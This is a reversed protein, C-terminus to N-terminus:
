SCVLVLKQFFHFHYSMGHDHEIRVHRVGGNLRFSLSFIYHDDSSDRVLFSGDPENSLIKEAAEGSLPGWYWGHNKVEDISAAFDLNSLHENSNGEEVSISQDSNTGRAMRDLSGESLSSSCHQLGMHDFDNPTTLGDGLDLNLATSPRAQGVIFAASRPVRVFGIPSVPSVTASVPEHPLTPLPPLARRQHPSSRISYQHHLQQHDTTANSIDAPTSFTWGTGCVHSGGSYGGSHSHHHHHAHVHHHLHPIHPIRFVNFLAQKIGAAAVSLSKRSRKSRADQDFSKKSMIPTWVFCSKRKSDAASDVSKSLPGSHNIWPRTRSSMLTSSSIPSPPSGSSPSSTHFERLYCRVEELSMHIPETCDPRTVAISHRGKSTKGTGEMNKTQSGKILSDIPLSYIDGPGGSIFSPQPFSAAAVLVPKKSRLKVKPRIVTSILTFALGEAFRCVANLSLIPTLDEFEELGCYPDDYFHDEVELPSDEFGPPPDLVPVESTGSTGMGDSDLNLNMIHVALQSYM